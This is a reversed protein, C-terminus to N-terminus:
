GKVRRNFLAKKYFSWKAWDGFFHNEEFLYSILRKYRKSKSTTSILFNAIRPGRMLKQLFHSFKLEPGVMSYIKKDYAKLYEASYKQDKIAQAAYQAAFRGSRIANGIGEGTLPDVLSAADGAILLHDSSLQVKKSGLPIGMGKVTELPKAHAFRPSITPHEKIVRELVEKLNVKKKSVYESLMGIGVNAKNNAMPFIWLYGPLVDEIFHLEIKERSEFEVGEYYIRLAGCHHKRDLKHNAFKRAVFSNIGDCAILMKCAIDTSPGKLSYGDPIRNVEKIETEELLLIDQCTKVEEILVNDFEERSIVCGDRNSSKLTNIELVSGNPAFAKVGIMRQRHENTNFRELLSPRIKSLQNIVDPSMADGCTKDRPFRHKDLLVVSYGQGSLCLAASAGAPGAGLIAIDYNQVEM